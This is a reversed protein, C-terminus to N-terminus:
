LGGYFDDADEHLFSAADERMKRMLDDEDNDLFELGDGGTLDVVNNQGHRQLDLTQLETEISRSGIHESGINSISHQEQPSFRITAPISMTFADHRQDHRRWGQTAANGGSGMENMKSGTEDWEQQNIGNSSKIKADGNFIRYLSVSPYWRGKVDELKISIGHALLTYTWYPAAPNPSLTVKMRVELDQAVVNPLMHPTPMQQKHSVLRYIDGSLFVGTDRSRAGLRSGPALDQISSVVLIEHTSQVAPHAGSKLRVTDGVWLKEAGLYVGAYYNQETLKEILTYSADVDRSKIISADVEISQSRREQHWPLNAYDTGTNDLNGNTLPPTSWAVWPRLQQAPVESQSRTTQCILPSNLPHIRYGQTGKSASPTDLVVGLAWHPGTQFWVQEGLRYINIGLPSLDNDRERHTNSSLLVNESVATQAPIFSGPPKSPQSSAHPQAVTAAVRRIPDASPRKSTVGNNNPGIMAERIPAPSAPKPPISLEAPMDAAPGGKCKDCTCNTPNKTEDSALWVFHPLFEQPSRYRKRPGKPHGYLYTDSRKGRGNKGANPRIQEFLRYGEPLNHLYIRNGVVKKLEPDKQEIIATALRELWHMEKKGYHPVPVYYVGDESSPNLQDETPGNVGDQWNVTGDSWNLVIVPPAQTPPSLPRKAANKM